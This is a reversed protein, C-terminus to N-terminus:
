AQQSPVASKKRHFPTILALLGLGFILHGGIMLGLDGDGKYGTEMAVLFVKFFLYTLAVYGVLVLWFAVDCLLKTPLKSIWSSFRESKRIQFIRM